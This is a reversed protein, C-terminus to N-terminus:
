EAAPGGERREELISQEAVRLLQAMEVAVDRVDDLARRATRLGHDAPGASSSAVRDAQVREDLYASLHAMTKELQEALRSLDSVIDEADGVGDLGPHGVSEATSAELLSTADAAVAALAPADEDLPASM